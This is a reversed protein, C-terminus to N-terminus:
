PRNISFISDLNIESKIFVAGIDYDDYVDINKQNYVYTQITTGDVDILIKKKDAGHFNQEIKECAKKFEIPNNDPFINYDFM